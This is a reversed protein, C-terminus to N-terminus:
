HGIKPSYSLAQYGGGSFIIVSPRPEYARLKGLIREQEAKVDEGKRPDIDVHLGIASKINSKKPRTSGSFERDPENFSYYINTRNQRTEIWERMEDVQSPRFTKSGVILKGDAGESLTTLLRIRHPHLACLFSVAEETDGVLGSM